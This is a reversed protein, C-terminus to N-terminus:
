PANLRRGKEHLMADTSAYKMACSDRMEQLMGEGTWVNNLPVHLIDKSVNCHAATAAAVM